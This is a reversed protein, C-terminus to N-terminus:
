YSGVNYTFTDIAIDKAIKDGKLIGELIEHGESNFKVFKGCPQDSKYFGCEVTSKEANMVRCYGSKLGDKFYGEKISILKFEEINNM